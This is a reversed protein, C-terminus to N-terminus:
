GPRTAPVAGTTAGGLAAVEEEFFADLSREGWRDAVMDGTTMATLFFEAPGYVHRPAFVRLLFLVVPVLWLPLHTIKPKKRLAQFAVMALEDHTYARPGGVGAEPVGQEWLEVCAEALDGGDIPNLRASGDGVLWARGSRAMELFDKMDSFFGTPRVIHHRVPSERLARVFREKAAVLGVSELEDGRFVSVYLFSGVGAREAERLVNLNAAYDVDEYTLGDRQRTIGLSSFVADVGDAVGVLTSPTTAQAVVVEAFPELADRQEDRRVIARVDYGHGHLSRVLHGGLYGTAGVVLVRPRAPTRLASKEVDSRETDM